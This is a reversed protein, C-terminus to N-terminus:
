RMKGIKRKLIDYFSHDTIKILKTVQQATEINVIDHSSLQIGKQGDFTAFAEELQTKRVKQVKISIKDDKDLIISKSQIAHACIPTVVIM